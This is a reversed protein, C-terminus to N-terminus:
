NKRRKVALLMAATVSCLIVAAAPIAAGTAPNTGQKGNEPKASEEPKSSDETESIDEPESSDDPQEREILGYEIGYEEAYSHAASDKFCRLLFGEQKMDAAALTYGFASAGIETVNEPVTVTMLSGCYEFAKEGVSIEGNEPFVVETLTENGRFAMAGISEIGEPLVVKGPGVSIMAFASCGIKKLGDPLEYNLFLCNQFAKDGIETINDLNVSTLNSCKAFCEDPIVTVDKPLTVSALKTGKFVGPAISTVRKGGVEDPILANKYCDRSRFATLELTGDEKETFAYAKEPATEPFEEPHDEEYSNESVEPLYLEAGADGVLIFDTKSPDTDRIHRKEESEGWLFYDHVFSDSWEYPSPDTDDWTADIYYYTDGDLTVIDWAHAEGDEPVNSYGSGSVVACPLGYYQSLTCLAHAYGDCIGAKYIVPGYFDSAWGSFESEVVSTDYAYFMNVCLRDHIYQLKDYADDINEAESYSELYTNFKDFTDKREEADSFSYLDLLKIGEPNVMAGRMFYLYPNDDYFLNCVNLLDDYDLEGIDHDWEVDSDSDFPIMNGNLTFDIDSEIVRMSFDWLEDYLAQYAEGKEM